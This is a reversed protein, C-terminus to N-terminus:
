GREAAAKQANPGRLVREYLALQAAVGADLSYHAEAAARCRLRLEPDDLLVQLERVAGNFAPETQEDIVIGVRQERVVEDLDGVGASMVVPLGCAWYEGVKTPSCSLAGIGGALFFLGAHARCLHAPVEEHPVTLVEWKEPPVGAASLSRGILGRDSHSLIGLRAEPDAALAARVFRALPEIHYRGGLSGAYVLRLGPGRHNRGACAFRELDVCSPVVVVPPQRRRVGPLQEVVGRSRESLLVLGDSREYLAREIRKMSRYLLGGAPWFRGEIQQDPWFGENHYVVPCGLLRGLMLGIVGGIFTRAHILDPDLRRAAARAAALGAAVDFATAPLTPRKHYRLPRWLVGKQRLRERYEAMGAADRLDRAKEFTILALELGREALKEVAPLVLSRGLPERLGWYAIYLIRRPTL